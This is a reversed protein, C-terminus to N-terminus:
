VRERCSARGIEAMGDGGAGPEPVPATLLVPISFRLATGDLSRVLYTNTLNRIVPYDIGVRDGALGPLIRYIEDQWSSDKGSM